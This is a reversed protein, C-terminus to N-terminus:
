PFLRIEVLEMDVSGSASDDMEVQIQINDLDTLGINESTFIYTASDATFSDITTFSSSIDPRWSVRVHGGTAPKALVVEMRSYVAKGLKTAVKYLPSHIVTEFNTYQISSSVISNFTDAGGSYGMIYFENKGWLGVVNASGSSPVNDITLTGDQRLRWMGSNGSTTTAVGFILDGNLQEIGGWTIPNASLQSANSTAYIPLKAFWKVYTGQTTYINGATGVLIFVLGGVNKMRRVAYEPVPLPLDFSDSIRDWPYIKNFSSGGVLLNAGQEELCQAVEYIPLDLAQNNYTFTAGNAPDFTSGAVEIISGVYRDDCFYIGDDQAKIAHHTAGSGVSSNMSQWSNSWALAEIATNGFVDIVDIVANRFVFLYTKTTDSFPSIVLGNGAANTVAAAGTDIASNHLLYARQGAPVFWARGNSGLMYIYGGRVDEVIWNITGIPVQHMTHVGTGADTIDIVTGAASGVSNKYSTCVKFTTTSIELLYYITNISLGAPLTTTTTFYVAAGSFNQSNGEIASPATCINSAADATFTLTNISHFYTGPKKAVKVAGPFSQLDANRFLGFGKHPSEAMGNWDKVILPQQATTM